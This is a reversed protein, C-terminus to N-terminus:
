GPFQVRVTCEVCIRANEASGRSEGRHSDTGHSEVCSSGPQRGGSQRFCRTRCRQSSARDASGFIWPLCRQVGLADIFAACIREQTRGGPSWWCWGSFGIRYLRNWYKKSPWSRSRSDSALREWWHIMVQPDVEPEVLPRRVLERAVQVSM